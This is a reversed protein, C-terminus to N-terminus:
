KCFIKKGNRIYIGRVPPASFRQGQLNYYYLDGSRDDTRVANVSNYGEYAGWQSVLFTQKEKLYQKCKQLDVDVNASGYQPWREYDSATATKIQATFSELYAILAEYMRNAEEYWLQRVHDQFIPFKAIEKMISSEWGNDYDYIFWNKAHWQSFANGCDWVPGFKWKDEGRDKYMYCSGLFAEVNDIIEHILYFRALNDLDLLSPWSTATKEQNYITALIRTMQYRLYNRQDSSLNEPSHYTIWWYDLDTGSVSIKLQHEDLANDIEVLWGGNILSDATEYDMQETINVRHQGVRVTETLFYLGMYEGNLVLEVPQQAPTYELGIQRSLEFAATNRFFPVNGDAHALLAFHKNKAMGLLPLGNELKIKYSKKEFSGWWTWNGRGRILLSIPNGASGIPDIGECGMADIYFSAEVYDYKSNISDVSNIFVVPLTGSYSAAVADYGQCCLLMGIIYILVKKM